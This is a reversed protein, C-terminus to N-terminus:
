GNRSTSPFGGVGGGWSDRRFLGYGTTAASWDHSEDWWTKTIAVLDYSELPVTAELEEQKNGMSRANTYLCKLPATLWAV